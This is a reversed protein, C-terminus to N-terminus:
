LVPDEALYLRLKAIAEATAPARGPASALEDQLRELDAVTDVDGWSRTERLLIGAERALRRTAELVAPADGWPM